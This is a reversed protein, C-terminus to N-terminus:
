ESINQRRKEYSHKYPNFQNIESNIQKLWEQYDDNINLSNLIEFDQTIRSWTKSSCNKELCQRLGSIGDADKCLIKLGTLYIAQKPKVDLKSIIKQLLKQPKSDTDFLFFYKESVIKQWYRQMIKQCMKKSFIYEFTPDKSYGLEKLISKLKTRNSLRAELRIIELEKNPTNFLKLQQDTQDQDISRGNNRTIDKVKDYMVFSNSKSYVTLARGNNRFQTKDLDLKRNINVKYIEGLVYRTTYNNNLAINKSVHFASIKARKIAKPEVEVGMERMRWRLTTILEDFDKEEIEDVNNQYLMKPASFEVKLPMYEKPSNSPRRMITMRPRYFTKKDQETPNNMCKVLYLSPNNILINASPQFRNPELILYDEKPITLIVTDLM